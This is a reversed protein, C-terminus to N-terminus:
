RGGTPPDSFPGPLHDPGFLMQLAAQLAQRGVPKFLFTRAGEWIAAKGAERDGSMAIVPVTRGGQRLRRLLERGDLEPLIMDLLMADFPQRDLAELAEAGNRAVDVVYGLDRLLDQLVTCVDSDDDVVLIRRALSARRKM